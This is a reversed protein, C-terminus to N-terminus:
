WRMGSTDADYSVLPLMLSMVSIGTGTSTSACSTM